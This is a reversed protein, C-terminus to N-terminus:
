IIAEEISQYSSRVNRTISVSKKKKKRLLINIDKESKKQSKNKEEGSLNQYKERAEKELREKHKQYYKTVM